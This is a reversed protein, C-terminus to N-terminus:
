TEYPLCHTLIVTKILSSSFCFSIIKERDFWTTPWDMHNSSYTVSVLNNRQFNILYHYHCRLSLEMCQIHTQNPQTVLFFDTKLWSCILKHYEFEWGEMEQCQCFVSITPSFVNVSTFSVTYEWECVHWVQYLICCKCQILNSMTWIWKFDQHFFMWCFM